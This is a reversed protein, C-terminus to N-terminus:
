TGQKAEQYVCALDIIQGCGCQIRIGTVQDGARQLSVRPDCAKGHRGPAHGAAPAADLFKITQSGEAPALVAVSYEQRDGSKPAVATLPVFPEIQNPTM